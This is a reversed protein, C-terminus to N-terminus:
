WTEIDKLSFVPGERCSLVPGRKTEVTCGQCLGTGCGTAGLLWVQAFDRDVLFRQRAIAEALSHYLAPSGAACVQDPWRIIDPLLAAVNGKHGLSGDATAINYEVEPPLLNAPMATRASPAGALLTVAVGSAVAQAALAALATVAMGEAVLLLRRTSSLVNYGEGCPGLVSIAQGPQQRALWRRATDDARVLLSITPATLAFIPLPRRLYPDDGDSCRVMVFQGPRARQAIEAASLELLSVGPGVRRAATIPTELQLM